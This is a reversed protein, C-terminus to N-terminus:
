EDNEETHIINYKLEMLEAGEKLVEYLKKSTLASIIKIRKHLKKDVQITTVNHNM